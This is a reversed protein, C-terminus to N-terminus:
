YFMNEQFVVYAMVEDGAPNKWCQSKMEKLSEHHEGSMMGEKAGM